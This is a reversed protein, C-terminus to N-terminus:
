RRLRLRRQPSVQPAALATTQGGQTPLICLQYVAPCESHLSPINHQQQFDCICDCHLAQGNCGTSSTAGKYHGHPHRAHECAAAALANSDTDLAHFPVSVDGSTGTAPTNVQQNHQLTVTAEGSGGSAGATWCAEYWDNERFQIRMDCICHLHRQRLAPALPHSQYQALAGRQKHPGHVLAWSGQCLWAYLYQVAQDM